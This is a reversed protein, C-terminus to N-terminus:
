MLHKLLGHVGAIVLIGGFIILGVVSQNIEKQDFKFGFTRNQYDICSKAYRKRFIIVLCGIAVMVINLALNDTNGRKMIATNGDLLMIIGNVIAFVGVCVVILRYLNVTRKGIKVDAHKGNIQMKYKESSSEKNFLAFVGIAIFFIAILNENM